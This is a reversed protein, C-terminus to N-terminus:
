TGHRLSNICIILCRSRESIKRRFKYFIYDMEYMKEQLINKRIRDTIIAPPNLYFKRGHLETSIKVKRKQFHAYLVEKIENGDYDVAMLKGQEYRFAAVKCNSGWRNVKFGGYAVKLDAMEAEDYIKIGNRKLIESTGGGCHGAWEDFCCSSETQFVRKWDQCGHNPLTKYWSNVEQNNRYLSCHGRSYVRDYDILIDDTIFKRINGWILDIDCYGWFDYEQLYESFIEGYAPKFDCLKYPFNLSIDFDYNQQVIKKIWDFTKHHVIVNDPYEYEVRDDTFLLFDITPNSRCSELFAPFYEPLRGGTFYPIVFAISKM